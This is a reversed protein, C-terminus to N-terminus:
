CEFPSLMPMWRFLNIRASLSDHLFADPNEACKDDKGRQRGAAVVDDTLNAALWARLEKRVQEVEPPYSFDV